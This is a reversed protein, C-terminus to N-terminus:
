RGASHMPDLTTANTRRRPRPSRSRRQGTDERGRARRPRAREHANAREIAETILTLALFFASLPALILLLQTIAEM